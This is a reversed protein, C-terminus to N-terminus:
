RQVVTVHCRDDVPILSLLGDRFGIRSCYCVSIIRASWRGFRSGEKANAAGQRTFCLRQWDGDRSISWVALARRVYLCHGFAILSANLM